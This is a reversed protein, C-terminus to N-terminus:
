GEDNEFDKDAGTQLLLDVIATHGQFSALSLAMSEDQNSKLEKDANARLLVQVTDTHGKEV